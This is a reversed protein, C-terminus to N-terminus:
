VCDLEIININMKSFLNELNKNVSLKNNRLLYVSSKINDPLILKLNLSATSGFSVVMSPQINKIIKHIPQNEDIYFLSNGLEKKLTKKALDKKGHHHPKYYFDFNEFEKKVETIVKKLSNLYDNKSIFSVIPEQGLVLVKNNLPYSYKNFPIQLSKGPVLALKPFYVYQNNVINMEIGTIDGEFKKTKLGFFVLLYNVSRKSLMKNKLSLKYYNLLGDELIYRSEINCFNFFISNSLIHALDVYYYSIKVNKFKLIQKNLRRFVLIQKFFNLYRSFKNNSVERSCNGNYVEDWLENKYDLGHPNVLINKAKPLVINSEILNEAISLTYPTIPLFLNLETM